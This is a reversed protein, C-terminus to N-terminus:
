VVGFFSSDIIILSLAFAHLFSFPAKFDVNFKDDAVKGVLFGVNDFSPSRGSTYAGSAPQLQVNKVSARTARGHYKLVYHKLVDDWRPELNVFETGEEASGDGCGVPEGPTHMAWQKISNKAPSTPPIIVRVSRPRIRSRRISVKLSPQVKRKPSSIPWVRGQGPWCSLGGSDDSHDPGAEDAHMGPEYLYFTGDTSNYWVEAVPKQQLLITYCLGRARGLVHRRATFCQLDNPGTELQVHFQFIARMGRQRTVYCLVRKQGRSRETLADLFRRAQPLGSPVPPCPAAPDWRTSLRQLVVDTRVKESLRRFAKCTQGLRALLVQVSESERQVALLVCDLADQDLMELLLCRPSGDGPDPTPDPFVVIGEDRTGLRSTSASHTYSAPVDVELGRPICPASQARFGAMM